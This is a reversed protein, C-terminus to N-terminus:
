CTGSTVPSANGFATVEWRDLLCVSGRASSAAFQFEVTGAERLGIGYSVDQAAVAWAYDRGSGGATAVQTPHGPSRDIITVTVNWDIVCGDSSVAISGLEHATGVGIGRSDFPIESQVTFTSLCPTGDANLTVSVFSPGAPALGALRPTANAPLVALGAYTMALALCSFARYTRM